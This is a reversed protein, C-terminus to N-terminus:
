PVFPVHFDPPTSIQLFHPSSRPNTEQHLRRMNADRYGLSALDASFGFVSVLPLRRVLWLFRAM